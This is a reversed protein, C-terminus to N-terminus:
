ASGDRTTVRAIVHRVLEDENDIQDVVRSAARPEWEEVAASIGELDPEAAFVLDAVGYEPVELREGEHTMLLVQVSQAVEDLTDQELVAASGDRELRFPFALHPVQVEDHVLEVM